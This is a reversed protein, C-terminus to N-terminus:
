DHKTARQSSTKGSARNLVSFLPHSFVV